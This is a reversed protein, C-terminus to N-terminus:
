DEYPLESIDRMSNPAVERLEDLVKGAFLRIEEDAHTSWRKGMVDRWARINGSVFFDVPTSELLFARAAERAKKVPIDLDRAAHYADDYLDLAREYHEYLRQEIHSLRKDSYLPPIVPHPHNKRTDVFRQSEVSFSVHRHRELELLLARSVDEVYFTVTGHEMVSYHKQKQINDIYGENDATAPNPLHWSKYCGRGAMETLFDIDSFSEDDLWNGDRTFLNEGELSAPIGVVFTRAVTTVKM